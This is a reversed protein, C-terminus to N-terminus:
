AGDLIDILAQRVSEVSQSGDVMAFHPKDTASHAYHDLLPSTQRHYVELRHRVTDVRDDERQILPEQTLDDRDAVVPPNYDVHYVRGSALHVRRGSLRRILLEDEVRIEIVYDIDIGSEELAHAQPLTRPFGDLLFGHQCDTEAIRLKVLDIILTDPVLAGSAMIAQVQQGLASGAQVAARLMDGTSIQPISFHQCLFQAQTGKGAGPSGLLIIRMIEKKNISLWNVPPM